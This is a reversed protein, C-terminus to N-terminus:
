PRHCLYREGPEESEFYALKGPVCSILTGQGRGVILHLAESLPLERGDLEGDSSMVHGLDPAGLATLIRLIDTPNQEAPNIRHCVRLDLHKFHDLTLRIKERGRKNSLLEVYRAKRRPDVFSQFFAAESGM